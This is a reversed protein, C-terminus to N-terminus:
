PAPPKNQKPKKPTNAPANLRAELFTDLSKLWQNRLEDREMWIEHKASPLDVKTCNPLLSAARQEGSVDVIGDNGSIEMLVPTKIDRLYAENKLVDISQFTHYVWGYTEDGMQLSPKTSLIENLVNFRVPDSSKRNGEFPEPKWDGSGPSYKELNGGLKAFQVLKRALFKWVPTVVDVMPATLIASDFVGPHEKLYRLAIHGGMSHGMVMLPGNSNTVVKTAFHNLTEIHNDYGISHMKMPANKLLRDSGAQGHWDLIWVAFGRATMDRITEFYKEIPERFGPAIVLTGKPTGEPQISGYRIKGGAANTFTGWQFGTPETFKDPLM